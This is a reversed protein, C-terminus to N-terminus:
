VMTWLSCATTSPSRHRLLTLALCSKENVKLHHDFFPRNSKAPSRHTYRYSSSSVAETASFLIFLSRISQSFQTLQLLRSGFLASDSLTEHVTQIEQLGPLFVLITGEKPWDHEGEVIYSLVSEVLEPNIKM